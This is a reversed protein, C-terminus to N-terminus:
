VGRRDGWLQVHLRQAYRYGFSGCAEILWSRQRLTRANTGEPMLMVRRPDAQVQEVMARVEEMDGPEAVVFKFQYAYAAMLRRVLDPRWRLEEHQLAFRGGERQYPTSNRLKPSISMLDCALERFVTGNTEITIHQGAQKLKACLEGVQHHIMPEGGTVVVHGCDHSVAEAVVDDLPREAGEPTWSTYPTDCWVCRLNCGTFRIFVSPVGTLMGEGQISFFTEALHLM